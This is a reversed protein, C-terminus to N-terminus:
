WLTECVNDWLAVHVAEHSGSMIWSKKKWVELLNKEWNDKNQCLLALLCLFPLWCGSQFPADSMKKWLSVAPVGRFRLSTRSKLPTCKIHAAKHWTVLWLMAYVQKWLVSFAWPEPCCRCRKQVVYFSLSEGLFGQDRPVKLFHNSTNFFAKIRHWYTCFM